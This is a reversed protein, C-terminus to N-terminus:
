CQGLTLAAAIATEAEAILTGRQTKNVFRLSLRPAVRRARMGVAYKRSVLDPDVLNSKHAM